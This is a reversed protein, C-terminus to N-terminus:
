TLDPFEQVVSSAARSPTPTDAAKALQNWVLSSHRVSCCLDTLMFSFCLQDYSIMVVYSLNEEIEKIKIRHNLTSRKELADVAERKRVAEERVELFADARSRGRRREYNMSDKSEM